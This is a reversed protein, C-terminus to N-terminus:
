IDGNVQTKEPVFPFALQVLCAEWFGAQVEEYVVEELGETHRWPTKWSILLVSVLELIEQMVKLLLVALLEKFGM